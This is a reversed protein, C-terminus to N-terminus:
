RLAGEWASLYGLRVPATAPALRASTSMLRECTRTLLALALREERRLAALRAEREVVLLDVNSRAVVDRSRRRGTLAALEGFLAGPGLAELEIGDIGATAEGDVGIYAAGGEEGRRLITDGARHFQRELSAIPFPVSHKRV